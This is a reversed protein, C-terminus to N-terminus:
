YEILKPIIIKDGTNFYVAAWSLGVGFGCGIVKKNRFSGSLKNVIMLPIATSSTNGFETLNNPCKEMDLGVKKVIKKNIMQNAQHLLLYDIDNKDINNKEILSNICKPVKSIAFSFVAAGDMHTQLRNRVVGDECTVYDFSAVTPMNRFGGDPIMIASAGQGDTHLEFYIPPTNGQSYELATCTGADGTILNVRDYPSRTKSVTEGVLLLAKRIQGTQMMASISSLGYVWGPCGMTIDMCMCDTSLGMKDQLICSTEPYIYDSTQSLFFLADIENKDWKLSEILKEAAKQCLDSSCVDKDAVRRRVVGTSQIYKDLDEKSEFLESNSNEVIHSPVCASIGSIRVNNITLTAM